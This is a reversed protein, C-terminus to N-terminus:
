EAQLWNFNRCVWPSCPDQYNPAPIVANPSAPAMHASLRSKGQPNGDATASCANCNRLKRVRAESQSSTQQSNQQLFVSLYNNKILAQKCASIYSCGKTKRTCNLRRTM